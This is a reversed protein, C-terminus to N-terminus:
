QAAWRATVGSGTKLIRDSRALSSLRRQLSRSSLSSYSPVIISLLESTGVGSSYSSILSVLVSDTLLEERSATIQLARRRFSSAEGSFSTGRAQAFLKSVRSSSDSSEQSPGTSSPSSFFGSSSTSSSPSGNTETEHSERIWKASWYDIDSDSVYFSRCRIPANSGPVKAYFLGPRHEFSSTDWGSSVAGRGFAVESHEPRQVRTSILNELNARVINDVVDVIPYQTALIVHVGTARGTCVITRLLAVDSKARIEAVEDIVLVIDPSTASPIWIRGRMGARRHEIELLLGKMLDSAGSVTSVFQSVSQSWGKLEIGGKLDILWPDVDRSAVLEGVLIQLINSKGTGTYGSILMNVNLPITFKEGDVTIGLPARRLIGSGAPGAWPPPNV